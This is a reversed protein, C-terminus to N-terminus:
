QILWLTVGLTLPSLLTSILIVDSTNAAERDYLEALMFPGTGTPLAALVVICVLATANLTFVYLSVFYILAPHLVLKTTVSLMVVRNIRSRAEKKNNAFVNALSNVRSLLRHRPPKNAQQPACATDKVSNSARARGGLFFGITILACPAACLGLMSVPSAITDPITAGCLVLLSAMAPALVIPMACVKRLAGAVIHRRKTHSKGLHMEVIIISMAFLACVTVITACLVYPKAEDGTVSLLLPYGIYATNSYASSVAQVAADATAHKFKINLWLTTGFVMFTAFTFCLAFHIFSSSQLVSPWDTRIVIDFLLAPLALFVVFKNLERAASNDVWGLRRVQWGLFILLFIPLILTFIALM